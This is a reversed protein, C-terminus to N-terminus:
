RIPLPSAAAGDPGLSATAPPADQPLPPLSEPDTGPAVKLIEFTPPYVDTTVEIKKQGDRLRITRTKKLSLGRIGKQKVIVKGEELGPVEELKRKYDATGVTATELEVEAPKLKGRLEFVLTGKDITSHIVIPFDYPNRLKLDVTPFVVTADLGPPIYGSPRSHSSREVIEMGGFYAAAHLTGSVQCTGGGVGERLEGKYIEPAMFFGNDTSRAGVNANFSVTEGPMLVVGEIQSAARHINKARGTQNGGDGFHTEYRSVVESTDIKEVAEASATPAIEFIPIEIDGAGAALARDLAAAAAYVDLYRGPAHGSAKRTTFDLKAARPPEDQEDKVPELRAALVEVPITAHLPFDVHGRRAELTSDIRAVLREEHGVKAARRAADAADTTAGLEGLTASLVPQGHVTFSVRRDLLAHEARGAAASATEGPGVLAGGVRLGRAIAGPAPLVNREAWLAAGATLGLVAAAAVSRGLGRGSSGSVADNAM